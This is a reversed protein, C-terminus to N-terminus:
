LDSTQAERQWVRVISKMEDDFQVWIPTNPLRLEFPVLSMPIDWPAGGNALGVGPLVMIRMEGLTLCAFVEAPVREVWERPYKRETTM